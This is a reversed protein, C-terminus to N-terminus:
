VHARGIENLQVSAALQVPPEFGKGCNVSSLAVIWGPGAPATFIANGMATLMPLRLKPLEALGARISMPLVLLPPPVRFMTATPPVPLILALPTAPAV